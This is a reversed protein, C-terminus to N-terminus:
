LGGPGQGPNLINFPDFRSKLSQMLPLADGPSTMAAPAGVGPDVQESALHGSYAEVARRVVAIAAALQEPTGRLALSLVGLAARGAMSYEVTLQEVISLLDGLHSPPISVKLRVIGTHWTRAAYADWSATEEDGHVISATAGARAALTATATAMQEAAAATTEFRVLLRHPPTEIEMASPTMPAAALANVTAVLSATDAARIVVTRSAPAIPTLKFTAHVIVALSGLSGCMLRALDYGAVNKVVRGGAKAIRGDSLAIQVGIILDRPTGFRHRRPGSANTAVIAGISTGGGLPPDLALWQHGRALVQNTEDLSVGAPVTAVLDGAYHEITTPMRALSLARSMPGVTLAPREIRDVRIPTREATARQLMATLEDLSAPQLLTTM